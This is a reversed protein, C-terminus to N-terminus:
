ETIERPPRRPPLSPGKSRGSKAWQIYRTLDGYGWPWFIADLETDSSYVGIAKSQSTHYLAIYLLRFKLPGKLPALRLVMATCHPAVYKRRRNPTGKKTTVSCTASDTYLEVTLLVPAASWQFSFFVHRHPFRLPLICAVTSYVAHTVALTPFM